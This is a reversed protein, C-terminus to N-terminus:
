QLAEAMRVGVYVFAIGVAATLLTASISLWYTAPSRARRFTNVRGRVAGARLGRVSSWVGVVALCAGVSCATVAIIPDSTV